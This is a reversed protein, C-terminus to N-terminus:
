GGRLTIIMNSLTLDCNQVANTCTVKLISSLLTLHLRKLAKQVLVVIFHFLVLLLSVSLLSRVLLVARCVPLSKDAHRSKGEYPAGM